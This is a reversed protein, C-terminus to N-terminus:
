RKEDENKMEHRGRQDVRIKREGKLRQGNQRMEERKHKKKKKEIVNQDRRMEEKIENVHKTETKRRM